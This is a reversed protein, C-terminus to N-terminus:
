EAAPGDGDGDADEGGDAGRDLFGSNRYFFAAQGALVVAVAGAVPPVPGGAVEGVGVAVALGAAGGVAATIAADVAREVPDTAGLYAEGDLNPSGAAIGAVISLSAAGLTGAFSAVSAAVAVGFAATTYRGRFCWEFM